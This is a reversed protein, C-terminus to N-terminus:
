LCLFHLRGGIQFMQFTNLSSSYDGAPQRQTHMQTHTNFSWDALNTDSLYRVLLTAATSFHKMGGFMCYNVKVMSFLSEFSLFCFVFGNWFLPSNNRQFMINTAAGTVKIYDQTTFMRM